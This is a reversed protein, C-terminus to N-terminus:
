PLSRLAFLKMSNPSHPLPRTPVTTGGLVAGPLSGPVRATGSSATNGAIPFTPCQGVERGMPEDIDAEGHRNEDTIGAVLEDLAYEEPSVAQITIVGDEVEVEVVSGERIQVRDALPRPIRVGLSNGWKEVKQRM